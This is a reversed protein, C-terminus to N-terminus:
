FIFELVILALVFVPWGLDILGAMMSELATLPQTNNCEIPTNQTDPTLHDTADLAEIREPTRNQHNNVQESSRFFEQWKRMNEDSILGSQYDEYIEQKSENM